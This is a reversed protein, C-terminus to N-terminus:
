RHDHRPRWTKMKYVQKRQDLLPEYRLLIKRQPRKRQPRKPKPRPKYIEPAYGTIELYWDSLGKLIEEVSVAVQAFAVSLANVAEKIANRLDLTAKYVELRSQLEDLEDQTVIYTCDSM